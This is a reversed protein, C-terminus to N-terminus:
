IGGLGSFGMGKWMIMMAFGKWGCEADEWM